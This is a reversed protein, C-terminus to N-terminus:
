TKKWQGYNKFQDLVDQMQKESLLIPTGTQLIRWYQECLSEVEVAVSTAQKLNQGIAIMGHHSLLCANRNKLAELAHDSLEQSGFLAYPACRISDGGAVAIMYHFPPIDLHMCALTTAFTSHTHVIANMEPRNMLIDRHMQWESSPAHKGTANGSFTMKVMSAASMGSPDIGSPTILFAHNEGDSLRVSANGTTGRNLGSNALSRATHLLAERLTSENEPPPNRNM